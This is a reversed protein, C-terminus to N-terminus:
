HCKKPRGRGRKEQQELKYELEDVGAVKKVAPHVIYKDWRHRIFPLNGSTEITVLARDGGDLVDIVKSKFGVWKGTMAACAAKLDKSYVEFTEVKGKWALTGM